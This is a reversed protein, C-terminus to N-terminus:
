KMKMKKERERMSACVCVCVRVSVNICIDIHDDKKNLVCRRYHMAASANPAGSTENSHVCQYGPNLYQLHQATYRNGIHPSPAIKKKFLHM